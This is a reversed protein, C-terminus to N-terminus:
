NPPQPLQNKPVVLVEDGDVQPGTQATLIDTMQRADADPGVLVQAQNYTTGGEKVTVTTFDETGLKGDNFDALAHDGSNQITEISGNSRGQDIVIDAGKAIGVLALLTGGLAVARRLAFNPVENKAPNPATNPVLKM